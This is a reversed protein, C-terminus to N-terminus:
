MMGPTELASGDVLRSYRYPTPDVIPADSAAIDAESRTTYILANDACGSQERGACLWRLTSFYTLIARVARPCYPM